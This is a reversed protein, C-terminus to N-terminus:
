GQFESEGGDERYHFVVSGSYGSLTSL